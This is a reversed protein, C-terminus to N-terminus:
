DHTLFEHQKVFCEGLSIHSFRSSRNDTQENNEDIIWSRCILLYLGNEIPNIIFSYQRM